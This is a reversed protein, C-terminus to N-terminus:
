MVLCTKQNQSRKQMILKADLWASVNTPLESYIECMLDISTKNEKNKLDTRARRNILLSVTEFQRTKVALHLPTDKLSDQCDLASYQSFISTYTSRNNILLEQIQLDRRNEIAFHLPTNKYPEDQHHTQAKKSVLLRCIYFNNKITAIHLATKNDHTKANINAENTLLYNLLHRDERYVAYHISAYGDDSLEDLFAGQNILEPLSDYCAEKVVQVLQKGLKKRRKQEELYEEMLTTALKFLQEADDRSIEHREWDSVKEERDANHNGRRRQRQGGRHHRAKEEQQAALYEQHLDYALRREPDRLEEYAEGILKFKEEAEEINNPNKDPHWLLALRRYSKTIERLDVNNEVELIEYYTKVTIVGEFQEM